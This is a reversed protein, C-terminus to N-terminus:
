FGLFRPEERVIRKLNMPSASAGSQNMPSIVMRARMTRAAHNRTTKPSTPPPQQTFRAAVVSEGGHRAVLRQQQQERPRSQKERECVSVGVGVGVPRHHM